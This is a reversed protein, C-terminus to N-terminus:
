ICANLQDGRSSLCTNTLIKLHRKIRTMSRRQHCDIDVIVNVKISTSQDGFVLNKALIHDTPIGNSPTPSIQNGSTSNALQLDIIYIKGFTSNPRHPESTVLCELIKILVNFEASYM